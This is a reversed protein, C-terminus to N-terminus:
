SVMGNPLSPSPRRADIKKQAELRGAITTNPFRNPNLRRLLAAELRSIGAELGWRSVVVDRAKSRMERALSPDSLIAVLASALDEPEATSVLLGNRGHEISERVGGEAIAVVPVGCANAELPALGFPELRSTYLMAIARSLLSVLEQDSVMQRIEFRVKLSKALETVENRYRGDYGIASLGIVYDEVPEGSPQFRETDVGLYCVQADLGYARLVSERSFLSNVLIRDFAEANSIEAQAQVRMAHLRVWNAVLRAVRFRRLGKGKETMTLWLLKPLAEYFERHPEGLYLVSPLRAHRAIPTTAFFSCCNAFLVDFGQGEMQRACERCHADMEKLLHWLGLSAKSKSQHNFPLVHETCLRSLPLFEQDATAPCWSQVEHGRSILGAVHHWLARKGGGSPLNHWVAIKM